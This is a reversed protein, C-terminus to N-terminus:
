KGCSHLKALICLLLVQSAQISSIYVEITILASSRYIRKILLETGVRTRLAAVMLAVVVRKKAKSCERM